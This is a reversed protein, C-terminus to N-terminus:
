VEALITQLKNKVATEGYQEEIYNRGQQSLKNWLKSDNYLHSVAEAFSDVEDAILATEGNKLGMGEAGITTSVVPLGLSLAQGLKGKMGAGYRLYSVFVRRKAFEPEVKDVWGIIKVYEGALAKLKDKMNSGILYLRVNPLREHIKPLVDQVFFYMADENPQHNYNGIFVLGNRQEFSTTPVPQQQHINPIVAFELNPLEQQLHYGDDQTVTITKDASICNALEKRKTHKAMNALEPNNEIEAQRQERIYHIDVTDYFIVTKPSLLRVFPIYRQGIDVRCILAFDFQRHAMADAIGYNAHFVEVGLAELAHRYKFNSDLNDPFFTVRYGLNTWIKLLTYLRLSGSDEDFSPLTADIVLVSPQRLPNLLDGIHSFIPINIPLKDQWRQYFNKNDTNYDTETYAPYSINHEYCLSAEYLTHHDQLQWILETVQYMPTYYSAIIDTDIQKLYATKAIILQSSAAYIQRRYAYYPHDAQSGAAPTHLVGERGLAAFGARIKNDAYKEMPILLSAETDDAFIEMAREVIDTQPVANIDCYWIYKAQTDLAVVDALGATEIVTFPQCYQQLEPNLKGAIIINATSDALTTSLRGLFVQLDLISTTEIISNIVFLHIAKADQLNNALPLDILTQRIWNPLVDATITTIKPQITPLSKNNCWIAICSDATANPADIEIQYLKDASDAIPEFLVSFYNNDLVEMADFYATRVVAGTKERILVRVQCTNIRLLTGLFLDLRYFNNISCYTTFVLVTNADLFLPLKGFEGVNEMNQLKNDTNAFTMFTPYIDSLPRLAPIEAVVNSTLKLNLCSTRSIYKETHTFLNTVKTEIDQVANVYRRIQPWRSASILKILTEIEVRLNHYESYLPETYKVINKEFDTFQSTKDRIWDLLRQYDDVATIIHAPAQLKELTGQTLGIAIQQSLEHNSNQLWEYQQQQQQAATQLEFYQQELKDFVKQLKAERKKINAIQKDNTAQIKAIEKAHNSQLKTIEKAHETQLQQYKDIWDTQLLNYDSQLQQYKDIWDTQLLNYDSQLQEYKTSWDTQLKDIKQSYDTQLQEYKNSWDTCHKHLQNNQDEQQALKHQLNAQNQTTQLLKLQLNQKEENIDQMIGRREQTLRWYEAINELQEDAPLSILHKILFQKYIDRWHQQDQTQTIQSNGWVAYEATIYDVHYFSTHKSLRLLMDWDEFMDFTEDFGGIKDWLKREILLNILPIYNEYSLRKSDYVENFQGITQEQLIVQEGLLDRKLLRCGSYVVKADFSSIATTLRQLHDPLLRDDDDLFGIVDCTTAQVGQNGAAARGLNNDNNVLCINLNPFDTIINEVNIGGDNVVIIENPQLKQDALSQLSRTLLHPRDKTRIIIAITLPNPQM